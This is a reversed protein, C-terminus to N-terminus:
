SYHGIIEASFYAEEEEVAIKSTSGALLTAIIATILISEALEPPMLGSKLGAFAIISSMTLRAAFLNAARLGLERSPMLLQLGAHTFLIKSPYSTALLVAAIPWCRSPEAVAVDMGATVFFIPALFGFVVAGIKDLARERMSATESLALGVIFSFLVAHIGVAESFLIVSLLLALMIRVESEHGLRPMKKSLMGLLPPVVILALIYAFLLRGPRLVLVTFVVISVVDAVMTSALLTQGLETRAQKTSYLIAYVVAVSTTSVGTAALLSVRLPYNMLYLALTSLAFPGFFSLFGIALSRTITRAILSPDMELGAFFMIASSGVLALTDLATAGHVGMLGVIFGLSIEFLAPAIGLAEALFVASLIVGAAVSLPFIEPHLGKDKGAVAGLMSAAALFVGVLLLWRRADSGL